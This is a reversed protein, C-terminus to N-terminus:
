GCLFVAEPGTGTVTAHVGDGCLVDYLAVDVTANAAAKVTVVVDGGSGGARVVVTAADSGGTLVVARLFTDSTTVDGTATVRKPQSPKM